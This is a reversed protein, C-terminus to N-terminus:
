TVTPTGKSRVSTNGEVGVLLACGGHDMPCLPNQGAFRETMHNWGGEEYIAGLELMSNWPHCLAFWHGEVPWAM